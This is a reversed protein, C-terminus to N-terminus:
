GVGKEPGESQSLATEVDVQYLIRDSVLYISNARGVVWDTVLRVGNENRLDLEALLKPNGNKGLAFLQYTDQDKYGGRFLAHGSSVAFASSGALPMKWVSRVERDHLWVLPFDTYYYLWVDKESEVNLAYCDCISDLGNTPQFEYVKNGDPDWAVLGSAGVPTEWGYNGFVGEDFYSTWILGGSTAQTLQIGDGLLIERAFKGNLTYVRGNKEFDDPSKYHSRVCVLLLEDVLPQVDHINFREQEILVDFVSEGGFLGIVRYEQPQDPVTKAFSAWGPEESRYDLPKLAVVLYVVGDPGVNFAVLEGDGLLSALSAVSTARVSQTM